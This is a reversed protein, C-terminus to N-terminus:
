QLACFLSQWRLASTEMSFQGAHRQLAKTDVVMRSSLLDDIANALAEANEPEVLRGLTGGLLVEAPGHPCDTAIIPVGAAAALVLVTPLGEFRSPLIFADADLVEELPSGTEGRLLVTQSLGLRSVQSELAGLEPGSGFIHLECARDANIRSMAEVLVDFGKQRVLRGIAIMKFASRKSKPAPHALLNRETEGLIPNYITQVQNAAIRFEAVVEDQLALSGTVLADCSRYALRAMFRERLYRLYGTVGAETIQRGHANHIGCVVPVDLRAWSRAALTLLTVDSFVSVVHTPQWQVLLRSLKPIFQFLSEPALEFVETLAAAEDSLGGQTRRVALCCKVGDGSLQRILNLTIREVGGIVLRPLVFMVKKEESV